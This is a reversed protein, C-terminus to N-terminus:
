PRAGLDGCAAAPAISHLKAEFEAPPRYALASHLRQRNYVDDIFVGIAARAAALDRYNRGDVEEQKLTKMFSEAKANDYPNGVRSMSPQIAHAELMAAYECCAYQVGRDSHHILSGPTPRRAAIAMGLAATALSARLHKDLAWGIVRRSFADLVVALYAFEELLRVYTIDAVWLQDLGSPLLGRALNPVVRWDHRSNTTVAVFPRKRLCLLNDQRMLRLVRKHNAM